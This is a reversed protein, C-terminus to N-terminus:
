EEADAPGAAPTPTGDAVDAGPLEEVRVAVLNFSRRARKLLSRLRIIEPVDDPAARLTIRYLTV